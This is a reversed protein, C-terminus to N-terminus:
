VELRDLAAVSGSLEGSAGPGVTLTPVDYAGAVDHVGRAFLVSGNSVISSGALFQNNGIVSGGFVYSSGATGLFLGEHVGREIALGEGVDLSVQGSAGNDFAVGGFSFSGSFSGENVVRPQNLLTTSGQLGYRAQHALGAQLGTAFTGTNRVLAQSELTIEFGGNQLGAFELTHGGMVYTGPELLTTDELSGTVGTVGTVGTGGLRLGGLVSINAVGDNIFDGLGFLRQISADPSRLLGSITVEIAGGNADIAGALALRSIPGQTTSLFDAIRVREGAGIVVTEALSPPGFAGSIRSWNGGSGWYTRASCTAAPNANCYGAWDLAFQFEFVNSGNVAFYVPANGTWTV